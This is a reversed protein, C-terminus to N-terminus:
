LRKQIFSVSQVSNHHDSIGGLIVICGHQLQWSLSSVPGIGFGKSFILWESVCIFEVVENPECKKNKSVFQKEPHPQKSLMIRDHM